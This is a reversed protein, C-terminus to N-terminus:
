VSHANVIRYKQSNRKSTSLNRPMIVFRLVSVVEFDMHLSKRCDVSVRTSVRRPTGADILKVVTLFSSLRHVSNYYSGRCFVILSVLYILSM